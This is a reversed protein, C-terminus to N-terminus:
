HQTSRNSHSKELLAVGNMGRNMYEVGLSVYVDAPSKEVGQLVSSEEKVQQSQCASLLLMLSLIFFRQMWNKM